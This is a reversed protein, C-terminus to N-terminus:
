YFRLNDLELWGMQGSERAIYFAIELLDTGTWKVRSGDGTQGLTGFPISVPTWLPSGSFFSEHYRGDTVSRTVFVVRYRGQGRAEFRLGHFQSVDAPHGDRAMSVTIRAYPEATDGMRATVHLAHDRLGRVVRGVIIDTTSGSDNSVNWTSGLGTRDGGGEFDDIMPDGVPIPADAASKVASGGTAHPSPATVNPTPAPTATGNPATSAPTTTASAATAPTAATTAGAADGARARGKRGARGAAAKGSPAAPKVPAAGPAAATGAANAASTSDPATPAPRTIIANLAARDIEEGGVFVQEVLAGDASLAKPDSSSIALDARQGVALFARDSQLGLAWASGSTAATLAQLPTLGGEVLLRLERLTSTGPALDAAGANSGVAIRVGAQQAARLRDLAVKKDSPV